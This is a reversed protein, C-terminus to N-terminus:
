GPTTDAGLPARSVGLTEAVFRYARLASEGLVAPSLGQDSLLATLAVYASGKGRKAMDAPLLYHWGSLYEYGVAHEPGVARDVFSRQTSLLTGDEQLLTVEVDLDLLRQSLPGGMRAEVENWRDRAVRTATLLARALSTGKASRWMRPEGHERLLVMVEVREVRRLAPPFSTVSPERAGRLLARAVYALAERERASLAPQPSAAYVGLESGLAIGRLGAVHEYRALRGRLGPLKAAYSIALASGKDAILAQALAVADNGALLKALAPTPALTRVRPCRLDASDSVYVHNLRHQALAACLEPDTESSLWGFAFGALGLLALGALLSLALPL